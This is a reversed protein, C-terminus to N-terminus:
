GTAGSRSSERLCGRITSRHTEAAASGTKQKWECRKEGADRVAIKQCLRQLFNGRGDGCVRVQGSRGVGGEAREEEDSIGSDARARASGGGGALAPSLREGVEEIGCLDVDDVTGDGAAGAAGVDRFAVPGIGKGEDLRTVDDEDLEALVFRTGTPVVCDM